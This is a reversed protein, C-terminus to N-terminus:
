PKRQEHMYAVVNAWDRAMHEADERHKFVFIAQQAGVAFSVAVLADAFHGRVLDGVDNIFRQAEEMGNISVIDGVNVTVAWTRYVAVRPNPNSM